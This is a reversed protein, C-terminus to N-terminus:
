FSEWRRQGGRGGGVVRPGRNGLDRSASEAVDGVRGADRNRGGPRQQAGIHVATLRAFDWLMHLADPGDRKTGSSGDARLAELQERLLGHRRHLAIQGARLPAELLRLRDEKSVGAPPRWPVFTTMLGRRKAEERVDRGIVGAFSVEEVRARGVRRRFALEVIQRVFDAVSRRAIDAELLVIRGDPTVGGVLIAQYDRDEGRKPRGETGMSPDVAMIVERWVTPAEPIADEHEGWQCLVADGLLSTRPDRPDNDKESAYGVPSAHRYEMLRYLPEGEWLRVSGRDMAERKSEYFARAAPRGPAPDADYVDAWEAWLGDAEDPLVELARYVHGHWGPTQTALHWIACDTSVATGFALCHLPHAVDALGLAAQEIWRRIQLRAGSSDADKDLDDFLGVQPRITGLQPDSWRLGRVAQDAGVAELRVGSRTELLGKAWARGSRPEPEQPGYVERLRTNQELEHRVAEVDRAALEWRARVLVVYRIGYTEPDCALALPLGLCAVTSKGGGRPALDARRVPDRSAPLARLTAHLDLHFRSVGRASAFHHPLAEFFFAALDDAWRARTAAASAEQQTAQVRTARTALAPDASLRRIAAARQDPALPPM